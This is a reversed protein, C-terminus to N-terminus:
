PSPREWKDTLHYPLFPKGAVPLDGHEDILKQLQNILESAKM